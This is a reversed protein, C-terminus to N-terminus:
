GVVEYVAEILRRARPGNTGVAHMQNCCYSFGLRADPDGFGISGGLGHHGFSRPNPGMYVAEPTNLLVGLAQHYPREQLLEIQNHQETIMRELQGKSLLSIGDVEGVAAGYIRAVGRANGHGSGSAIECTRWIPSNMTTHWPEQPNQLFAFSRLVAGDQWGEPTTPKEPVTQDKAAFLRAGTNPLVEAVHAQQQEDMGGIYYEAGLPGAVNEKLFPGVTMGTVRRMIEGLLFGQNHVHYAARTGPEWLPHQAELARIYAPYDYFGGPYLVDDTLVPIAATHDLVMRVTIGDKGNQAFEPWYHAVREDPDILGRDILTNFCIGTVGKAVSMMCVMTHEGWPASRDARAWGGWLDVVTQGDLVVSAGAGLEEESRFNEIFADVVPRFRADYRGHLPFEGGRAAITEQLEALAAM